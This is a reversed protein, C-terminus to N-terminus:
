LLSTLSNRNLVDASVVVEQEWGNQFIVKYRKLIEPKGMYMHELLKYVELQYLGGKKAVDLEEFKTQVAATIGIAVLNDETPM